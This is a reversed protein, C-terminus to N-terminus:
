EQCVVSFPTPVCGSKLPSSPEGPLTHPKLSLSLSDFFQSFTIALPTEKKTFRSAVSGELVLFCHSLAHPFVLFHSLIFTGRTLILLIMMVLYRPGQQCSVLCMKSAQTLLCQSYQRRQSCSSHSNMKRHLASM